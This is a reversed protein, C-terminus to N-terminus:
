IVQSTTDGPLHEFKLQFHDIADMERVDLESTAM